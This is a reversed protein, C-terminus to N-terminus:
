LSESASGVVTCVFLYNELHSLFTDTCLSPFLCLEQPLDNWVMPGCPEAYGSYPCVPGGSGERLLAFPDAVGPGRCRSLTRLIQELNMLGSSRLSEQAASQCGRTVRSHPGKYNFKM